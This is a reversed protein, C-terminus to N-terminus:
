FVQYVSGIDTKFVDKELENSMKEASFYIKIQLKNDM